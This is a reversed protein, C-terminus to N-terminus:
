PSLELNNDNSFNNKVRDKDISKKSYIDGIKWVNSFVPTMTHHSLGELQKETQITMWKSIELNYGWIDDLTSGQQDVGGYILM